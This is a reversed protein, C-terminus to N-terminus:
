REVVEPVADPHWIRNKGKFQLRVIRGEDELQALIRSVTAKSVSVLDVIEAQTVVDERQLVDFLTDRTDRLDTTTNNM